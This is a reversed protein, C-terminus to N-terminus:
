VLWNQIYTILGLISGFILKIAVKLNNTRQKSNNM